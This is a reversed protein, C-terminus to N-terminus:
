RKAQRVESFRVQRRLEDVSISVHVVVPGDTKAPRAGNVETSCSGDVHRYIELSQVETTRMKRAVGRAYDSATQPSIGLAILHRMLSVVVVDDSTFTRARGASTEQNSLYSLLGESAWYNLTGHPVGTVAAVDRASYTVDDSGANKRTM